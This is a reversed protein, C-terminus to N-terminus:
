PPTIGGMQQYMLSDAAHGDADRAIREADAALQDVAQGVANLLEAFATRDITCADASPTPLDRARQAFADRVGDREAHVVAADAQNRATTTTRVNIAGIEQKDQLADIERVSEMVAADAARDEIAHQAYGEDYGVHHAGWLSIAGFIICVLITIIKIQLTM